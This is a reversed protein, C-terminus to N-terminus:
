FVSCFLRVGSVRHCALRGLKRRMFQSRTLGSPSARGVRHPCTEWGEAVERSQGHSVDSDDNSCSMEYSSQGCVAAVAMLLITRGGSADVGGVHPAAKRSLRLWLKFLRGMERGPPSCGACVLPGCTLVPAVADAGVRHRRGLTNSAAARLDHACMTIDRERESQYFFLLLYCPHSRRGRRDLRRPKSDEVLTCKMQRIRQFDPFIPFRLCRCPQPRLGARSKCACCTHPPHARSPPRSRPPGRQSGHAERSLAHSAARLFASGLGGPLPFPRPAAQCWFSM